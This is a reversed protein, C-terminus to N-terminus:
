EEREAKFLLLNSSTFGAAGKHGGGGYKMAIQSCDVKTSRLEYKWTTGNFSFGILMDYNEENISKFHESSIMAMNMAYCKLGELETEFGVHECYEKAWNDRYLLLDQGKKIIEYELDWGLALLAEFINNKTEAVPNLDHLQLGMEFAKTKEGFEFKWVDFDAVYKTFMPADETMSIDFNEVKGVGCDTMHKLYCYTLLCGAIGDYRIGKIYYPFNNYKKIASVHHDIWTIDSTITLLRKMEEPMISYDVIYIQENSQISEFPFEMGYNIPYFDKKYGDYHKALKHVWYASTKGDEDIHYFCKM